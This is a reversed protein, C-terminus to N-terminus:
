LDNEGRHAIRLCQNDDSNKVIHKGVWKMLMLALVCAFNPSRVTAFGFVESLPALFCSIYPVVNLLWSKQGIKKCTGGGRGPDAVTSLPWFDVTRPIRTNQIKSYICIITLLLSDVPASPGHRGGQGASFITMFFITTLHVLRINM